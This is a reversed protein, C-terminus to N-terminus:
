RFEPFHFVAGLFLTVNWSLLSFCSWVSLSFSPPCLGSVRLPGARGQAPWM